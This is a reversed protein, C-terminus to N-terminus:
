VIENFVYNGGSRCLILGKLELITLHTNLSQANLNLINCMIESNAIKNEKIYEYVKITEEDLSELQENELTSAKSLKQQEVFDDYDDLKELLGLEYLIEKGETIITAGKKLLKITGESNKSGISNPICFVKKGQEFACRATISTGSRYAAEIVLTAVSLGSVIRNRAPFYEKKVDEDPLQESMVCGGSNVIRNFLDINERPFVKNLGSGLVAITRGGNELCTEHAITDIGVALGSVICVGADVLEKVIKRTMTKGYESMNRSGVVTVCPLDFCKINGEVYLEHPANKINHLSKPYNLSEQTLTIM